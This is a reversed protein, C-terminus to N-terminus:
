YQLLLHEILLMMSINWHKKMMLFNMLVIDTMWGYNDLKIDGEGALTINIFEKPTDVPKSADFYESTLVNLKETYKLHSDLLTLNDSADLLVADASYNDKTFLLRVDLNEGFTIGIQSVEVEKVFDGKGRLQDVSLITLSDRFLMHTDIIKVNDVIETKLSRFFGDRYYEMGVESHPLVDVGYHDDTLWWTNYDIHATDLAIINVMDNYISSVESFESISVFFLVRIM